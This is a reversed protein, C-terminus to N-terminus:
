KMSKRMTVPLMDLTVKEKQGDMVTMRIGEQVTEVITPPNNACFASFASAADGSDNLRASSSSDYRLVQENANNRLTQQLQHTVPSQTSRRPSPAEDQLLSM